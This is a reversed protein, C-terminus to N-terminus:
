KESIDVIDLFRVTGDLALLGDPLMVIDLLEIGCSYSALRNGHMDWLAVTGDRSCTAFRGCKLVVCSQVELAHARIEHTCQLKCMDWIRITSDCSTTVIKSSTWVPNPRMVFAFDGHGVLKYREVGTKRELVRVSADRLGVALLEPGCGNDSLGCLSTIGSSFACLRVARGYLSLTYLNGNLLGANFSATDSGTCRYSVSLASVIDSFPGLCYDCTGTSVSWFKILRDSGATVFRDENCPDPAIARVWGDHALIPPGHRNLSSNLICITGNHSGTVLHYCGKQGIWCITSVAKVNHHKPVVRVDRRTVFGPEGRMCQLRKAISCVTTKNAFAPWLRDRLAHPDTEVRKGQYFDCYSRRLSVLHNLVVKREKRCPLGELQLLTVAANYSSLDKAFRAALFAPDCVAAAIPRLLWDKLENEGSVVACMDELKMWQVVLDGPPLRQMRSCRQQKRPPTVMMMRAKQRGM